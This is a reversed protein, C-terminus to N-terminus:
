QITYPLHVVQSLRFYGLAYDAENTQNVLNGRVGAPTTTFPGGGSGDAVDLLKSMYNYYQKSIGYLKIDLLQGPKFDDTIFDFMQNGNTFEDSSIDYDPYPFMENEYRTMYHNEEAPDDNFFFRVEVEDGMFGGDDKQQIGSIDPVSYLTETATYTQGDHTITLVYTDGIEPLFYGCVYLGTGPTETFEYVTGASNTIVVAAGSVVPIETNYYGTTTTLKITQENGPTGKIWDISADVVLRPPATQVDVDVVEECGTVFLSSIVLAIYLIKKM